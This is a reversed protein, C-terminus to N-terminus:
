DGNNTTLENMDLLFKSMGLYLGVHRLLYLLTALGSSVIDSPSFIEQITGIWDAGDIGLYCVIGAAIFVKWNTANSAIDDKSISWVTRWQTSQHSFGKAQLKRHLDPCHNCGYLLCVERTDLKEFAADVAQLARDNRGDISAGCTARSTKHGGLLVQGFLLQRMVLWQGSALSQLVAQAIPSIQGKSSKAGEDQWTSSWDLLLISLEPSPVAIWLVSRLFLAFYNGPLFLNTFIRRRSEPNSSLPPGVFLATAAESGAPAMPNAERTSYEQRTWDAHYWNRRAYDILNAQCEWGYQLALAQDSSSAQVPWQLRALDPNDYQLLQEDVLLEYLIPISDFIPDTTYYDYYSKSGLHVQSHLQLTFHNKKWTTVATQFAFGRATIDASEDHSWRVYRHQQHSPAIDSGQELSALETSTRTSANKGGLRHLNLSQFADICSALVLFTAQKNLM